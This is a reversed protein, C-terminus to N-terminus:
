RQFATARVHQQRYYGTKGEDLCLRPGGCASAVIKEVSDRFAKAEKRDKREKAALGWKPSQPGNRFRDCNHGTPTWVPRWRSWNAQSSSIASPTMAPLRHNVGQM